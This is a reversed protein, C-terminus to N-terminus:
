AMLTVRNYLSYGWLSYGGRFTLWNEPRPDRLMEDTVPVYDQLLAPVDDQALAPTWAGPAAIGLLLTAALYLASLSRITM